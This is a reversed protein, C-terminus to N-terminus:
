KEYWDGLKNLEINVNYILYVDKYSDVANRPDDWCTCSNYMGTETNFWNFGKTAVSRNGQINIQPLLIYKVKDTIREAVIPKSYDLNDECLSYWM